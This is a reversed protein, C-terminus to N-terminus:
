LNKPKDLMQFVATITDSATLNPQILLSAADSTVLAGSQNNDVIPDYVYLKSQPVKRYERQIYRAERDSVDDWVPVGNKKVRLDAINGSSNASVTIDFGDGAVFDTAGDALTFSLGGGSYASAVVGRVSVLEGDPDEHVFTGVNAGPEVITIKHVGVKAGAAVTVAGMTGNGTNGAWAASSASAAWDTGTYFLFARQMLAGMPNFNIDQRGSSLTSTSQKVLKKLLDNGQPPTFFAFAELTPASAGSGIKVELYVNDALTTMDIGGIEKGVIDPADRETFDLTLHYDDDHLGVYKNIKDLESGTVDWISHSGIKVNIQELLAKTLTTGGLVLLIRTLTLAYKPIMVLARSGAAVPNFAPLKQVIM